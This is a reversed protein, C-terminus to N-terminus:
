VAPQTTGGLTELQKLFDGFGATADVASSKVSDPVAVKSADVKGHNTLKMNAALKISMEVSQGMLESKTGYDFSASQSTNNAAKDYAFVLKCNKLANRLDTAGADKLANELDKDTSAIANLVQEGTLTIAYADGDKSLEGESLLSKSTLSDIPNSGIEMKGWQQAEGDTKSCSYSVFSNGEKVLYTENQQKEGMIETTMSLHTNGDVTDGGVSAKVPLAQGMIDVNVELDGEFHYNKAGPTKENVEALETASSPEKTQAVQGAQACGALGAIALSGTVALCVIQRKLNHM